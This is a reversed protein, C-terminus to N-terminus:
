FLLDAVRRGDRPLDDYSGLGDFRQVPINAVAEPDALRINVAARRRGDPGSGVSAWYVVSACHECFHFALIKEGRLYTRTPGSVFVDEDYWGYIWLAAYRRCVTCNCITAADPESEFRWRVAGCHCSGEIV